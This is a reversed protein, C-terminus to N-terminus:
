SHNPITSGNKWCSMIKDLIFDISWLKSSIGDIKITVKVLQFLLICLRQNNSQGM